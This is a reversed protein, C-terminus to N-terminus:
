GTLHKKRLFSETKEQRNLCKFNTQKGKPNWMKIIETEQQKTAATAKTM